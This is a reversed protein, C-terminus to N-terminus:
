KDYSQARYDLALLLTMLGIYLPVGNPYGGELLGIIHCGLIGVTYRQQSTEIMPLVKGVHHIILRAWIFSNLLKISARNWTTSQYYISLGTALARQVAMCHFTAHTYRSRYKSSRHTREALYFSSLGQITCLMLDSVTAVPPTGTHWLKFYYLIVETLSTTIHLLFISRRARYAKIYGDSMSQHCIYPLFYLFIAATWVIDIMSWPFRAHHWEILYDDAKIHSLNM